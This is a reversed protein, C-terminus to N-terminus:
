KIEKRLHDLGRKIAQQVNQRSIGYKDAIEQMNLSPCNIGYYEIIFRKYQKNKLKDILQEIYVKNVVFQELNFKDKLLDIYEIENISNNLSYMKRHTRKKYSNHTFLRLIEQKISLYLFVSKKYNGDFNKIGQILGIIGTNYYTDFDEEDRIYCNLDRIVKYVLNINELIEDEM